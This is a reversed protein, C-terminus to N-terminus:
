AIKAFFEDSAMIKTWVAQDLTGHDLAATYGGLGNPDAPRDLFDLDDIFPVISSSRDNADVPSQYYGAVEDQHFEHGNFLVQAAQERTMGSALYTNFSKLASPEPNRGLALNFLRTVFGTTTGGSLAFFEPTGVLNAQTDEISEKQSVIGVWFALGVADPERGLYKEFMGTVLDAGLEGPMATAIIATVVQLRSQGQDLLNSWYPLASADVPRHLLDRYVEQIFRENPTGLTGNALLEEQIKAPGTITASATDDSVHANVPFTGEDLYTHSGTVTYTTGSESVAGASTTGDGWDITATFSGAAEGGGHTFTAVAVDTLSSREFGSVAVASGSIGREVANATSRATATSGGVDSIAVQVPNTGEELYTHTGMVNFGGSANAAVTGTTTAGDGWTITATFNSASASADADVFSAVNGTFSAGETPAVTAGTATLTADAVKATSAATATSGGMDTINVIIPATGEEAYSHTGTVQFGGSGNAAVTGLTTAGNGWIVTATYDTATGAPDADTFNAVVGTFSLGETTAITVATASLSADAIHISATATGNATGPADDLLVVTATQTGEEAYTHSGSVTFPGASGTVTGATTTGDGWEIAATFDAASNNPYGADAFVAVTGSLSAGETGALTQPTASPTFSDGETVNASSTITASLTSPADDAFSALVTFTGEDAFTHDGSITFTGSGGTVTAATTVGDGWNVAATFDGAVQGPFGTDTFSAVAGSFAQGETPTITAAILTGADSESVNATSAATASTADSNDTIVVSIPDTGEDAYAHTGGVTFTNSGSIVGATTTGDGWNISASFPGTDTATFTAATGTFATGEQPTVAVGSPSVSLLARPELTQVTPQFKGRRRRAQRNPYSVSLRKHWNPLFM